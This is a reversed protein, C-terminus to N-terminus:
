RNSASAVPRDAAGNRGSGAHHCVTALQDTRGSVVPFRLSRALWGRRQDQRVDAGRDAPGDLPCVPRGPPFPFRVRHPGRVRPPRRLQVTRAAAVRRAARRRLLRRPRLGHQVAQAGQALRARRRPVCGRPAQPRRGRLGRRRPRPVLQLAEGASSTQPVVSSIAETRVAEESLLLARLGRSGSGPGGARPSICGSRPSAGMM